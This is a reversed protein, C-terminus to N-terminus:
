FFRIDSNKVKQSRARMPYMVNGSLVRALHCSPSFTFVYSSRAHVLSAECWMGASKVVFFPEFSVSTQTKSKKHARECLTCSMVPCFVHLIVLPFFLLSTPLVLMSLLRREGFVLAKSWLSPSLLFSHRFKRTRTLASAYPVHCLEVLCTCSSPHSSFYLRVFFSCACSVGRV